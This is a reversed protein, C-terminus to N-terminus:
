RGKSVFGKRSNVQRFPTKGKQVSKQQIIFKQVTERPRVAMKQRNHVEKM